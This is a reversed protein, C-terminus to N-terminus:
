THTDYNDGRYRRKQSASYRCDRSISIDLIKTTEKAAARYDKNTSFVAFFPPAKVPLKPAQLSIPRKLSSLALDLRSGLFVLHHALMSYLHERMANWLTSPRYSGTEADLINFSQSSGPDTAYYVALLTGCLLIFHATAVNAVPVTTSVKGNYLSSLLHDLRELLRQGALVGAQNFAQYEDSNKTTTSVIYHSNPLSLLMTQFDKLIEPPITDRLFPITGLECMTYIQWEADAPSLHDIWSLLRKKDINTIDWKSRYCLEISHLHHSLNNTNNFNSGFINIDKIRTRICESFGLTRSELQYEMTQRLKICTDCPDNGSCKIKLLRCRLCSGRKRVVAVENRRIPDFRARRPRVKQHNTPFTLVSFSSKPAFCIPDSM